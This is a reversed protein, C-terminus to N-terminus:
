HMRRECIILSIIISGVVKEFPVGTYIESFVRFLVHSDTAYSRLCATTRGASTPQKRRSVPRGRVRSLTTLRRRFLLLLLSSRHKCQQCTCVFCFEFSRQPCARRMLSCLLLSRQAGYRPVRTATPSHNLLLV